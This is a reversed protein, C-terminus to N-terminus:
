LHPEAEVREVVGDAALRRMADGFADSGGARARGLMGDPGGAGHRPGDDAGLEEVHSGLRADGHVRFVPSGPPFGAQVRAERERELFRDPNGRVLAQISRIARTPPRSSCGARPGGVGRGRVGHGAGAGAGRSRSPPRRCGRRRDRGPRPREDGPRPRRGSRRGPDGPRRPSRPRGPEHVPVQALGTAWEVLREAGGRRIAFREGRLDRVPGRRRVRHLGGVGVGDPARGRLRRLRGAAACRPLGPRDRLRAGARARVRAAGRPAGAGAAARTGGPGAPGGRREAVPPGEPGREAAGSRRGGVSHCLASLVGGRWGHARSRDRRRPRPLVARAGRPPGSPGRPLLLRAGASSAARVGGAAHRGRRRVLRRRNARWTRYRSRRDGGRVPGARDGFAEAVARATAPVPGAEPCSCSRRDTGGGRVVGRGRRRRRTGGAARPSPDDRRNRAPLPGPPGGRRRLRAPRRAPRGVRRSRDGDRGLRTGTAARPPHGRRTTARRPRWARPCWGASSPRSRPWTAARADMARPRAAGRRVAPGARGTAPGAADARPPRRHARPGLRADAQRPVPVAGALRHGRRARRSRMPSRATSRCSRGTSASPSRATSPRLRRRRRPARRRSRHGGLPVGQARLARLRRHRPLDPAPPGAGPHDVAPRFDFVDWLAAELKEPDVQETGFTEVMLSVPHATGIAYAVQLQCADAMGAAVVNKAVYRAMYAASRDVKTPDKGSFAGGGHPAYGGYTDVIIKRGTLGTDAKPGGIEFRGTPNVLSRDGEADLDPFERLVPEIM